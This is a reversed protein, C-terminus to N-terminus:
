PCRCRHGDKGACACRPAPIRAQIVCGSIFSVYSDPPRTRSEACMGARLREPYGIRSPITCGPLPRHFPGIPPGVLCRIKPSRTFLRLCVRPDHGGARWRLQGHPPRQLTSPGYDSCISPKLPGTGLRRGHDRLAEIAVVRHRRSSDSVAQSLGEREALIRPLPINREPELIRPAGVTNIPLSPQAGALRDAVANTLVDFDRRSLTVHTAGALLNSLDTSTLRRQGDGTVITMLIHHVVVAVLRTAEALPAREASLRALNNAQERTNTALFLRTPSIPLLLYSHPHALGHELIVPRNSTFLKRGVKTVDITWWEM